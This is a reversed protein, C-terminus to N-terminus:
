QDVEVPDTENQVTATQADEDEAEVPTTNQQYKQGGTPCLVSLAQLYGHFDAETIAVITTPPM